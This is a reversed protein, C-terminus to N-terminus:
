EEEEEEEEEAIISVLYSYWTCLAPLVQQQKSGTHNL